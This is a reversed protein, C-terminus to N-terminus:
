AAHLALYSALYSARCKNCGFICRNMVVSAFVLVAAGCFTPSERTIYQKLDLSTVLLM